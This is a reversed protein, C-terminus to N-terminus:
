LVDSALSLELWLYFRLWCWRGWVVVVTSDEM